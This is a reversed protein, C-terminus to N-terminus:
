FYKSLMAYLSEKPIFSHIIFFYYCFKMWEDVQRHAFMTIQMVLYQRALGYFWPSSHSTKSAYFALLVNGKFKLYGLILPETLHWFLLAPLGSISIQGLNSKWCCSLNVTCIQPSPPLSIILIFLTFLCLFSFVKGEYFLSERFLSSQCPLDAVLLWYRKLIINIIM